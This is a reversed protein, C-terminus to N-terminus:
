KNNNKRKLIFNEIGNFIGEALDTQYKETMLRECERKNSIFSVNILIAPIETGILVYFPAQKIGRNKIDGYRALMHNCLSSQILEALLQSENIKTNLMLDFIIEQLDEINKESTANERAAVEVAREDPIMNLFYTEIGYVKPDEHANCHISIFLDADGRHALYVRQDLPVFEDETRTM